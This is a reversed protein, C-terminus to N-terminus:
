VTRFHLIGVKIIWSQLAVRGGMWWRRRHVRSFGTTIRSYIYDTEGGRPRVREGNRDELLPTSVLLIDESGYDDNIDFSSMSYEQKEQGDQSYLRGNGSPYNTTDESGVKSGM